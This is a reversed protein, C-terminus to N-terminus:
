RQRKYVFIGNENELSLSDAGLSVIDFTDANLLLKANVMQWATYPKSEAQVSSHVSGDELIEFNRDLSTWRGLLTTLNVVKMALLENDVSSCTVTLRDGALLGGYITSGNDEDVIVNMTEGEDTILQISHMSTGDGCKGYIATDPVVVITSDGNSDNASDTQKTGCSIISLIAFLSVIIKKM